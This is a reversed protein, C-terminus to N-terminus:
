FIHYALLIAQGSVGLKAFVSSLQTCLNDESKRCEQVLIASVCHCFLCSCTGSFLMQAATQSWGCRHVQVCM